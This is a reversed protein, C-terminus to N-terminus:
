TENCGLILGGPVNYRYFTICGQSDLTVTSTKRLYDLFGASIPINLGFFCKLKDETAMKAKYLNPAMCTVYSFRSTEYRRMRDSVSEAAECTTKAIKERSSVEGMNSSKGPEGPEEGGKKNELQPYSQLSVAM